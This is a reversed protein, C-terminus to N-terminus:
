NEANWQPGGSRNKYSWLGASQTSAFFRNESPDVNVSAQHMHNIPHKGLSAQYRDPNDVTITPPDNRSGTLDGSSDLGFEVYGHSTVTNTKAGQIGATLMKTGNKEWLSLAGTAYKGTSVVLNNLRSSMVEYLTGGDQEVVIIKDTDLKIMGTFTGGGLPTVTNSGDFKYVGTGQTSLYYHNTIGDYAAGSLMQTNSELLTWATGNYSLIGFESDNMAGAFLLNLTDDPDAYVRQVYPYPYSGSGPVEEWSSGSPLDIRWLKTDKMGTVAYLHTKTAALSIIIGGPPNPTYYTGSDWAGERYWHLKGGSAVFMVTDTGNRKCEVMNTPAGKIFSEEQPTEQSIKYFIPDQGCSFVTLLGSLIVAIYIFNKKKIL